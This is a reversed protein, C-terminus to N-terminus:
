RGASPALESLEHVNAVMQPQVEPSSQPMQVTGIGPPPGGYQQAAYGGYVTNDLPKAGQGDFAGMNPSEPQLHPSPGNGYAQQSPFNATQQPPYVPQIHAQPPGPPPAQSAPGYAHSSRRSWLYFGMGAVALLGVIGIVVGAIWAKSPEKEKVPETSPTPTSSSTPDSTQSALSTGTSAPSATTETSSSDSPIESSSETSSTKTRPADEILTGSPVDRYFRLFNRGICHYWRLPIGTDVKSGTYIVDYDCTSTGACPSIGGESMLLTSGDCSTWYASPCTASLYQSDDICWDVLTSDRFTAVSGPKESSTIWANGDTDTITYYGVLSLAPQERMFLEARQTITPHATDFTADIPSADVHAFVELFFAFLLLNLM